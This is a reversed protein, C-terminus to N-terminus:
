AHLTTPSTSRALDGFYLCYLVHEGALFLSQREHEPLGQLEELALSPPLILAINRTRGLAAELLLDAPPQMNSNRFHFVHDPGSVAWDPDLFAADAAAMLDLVRASMADALVFDVKHSLGARQVNARAQKQHSPDIEVTTVHTAVRALAITTFGGGTCSEIVRLGQYRVAIPRTLRTDIGLRFTRETAEYNDGFKARIASEDMEVPM